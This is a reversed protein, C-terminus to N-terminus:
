KAFIIKSAFMGLLVFLICLFNNLFINIFFCKINGNIFFQVTELSYTSFTTYGGLFGTILFLRWKINISFLDFMNVLFGILLAGVCNVFLTGFPFKINMYSNIFQSSSDRLLAGIGGGIIIYFYYM